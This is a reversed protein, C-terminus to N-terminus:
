GPYDGHVSQKRRLGALGILGTGFLWVTAPVPVANVTVPAAMDYTQTDSGIDHTVAWWTFEGLNLDSVAVKWELTTGGNASQATALPTTLDFNGSVANYTHVDDKFWGGFEPQFHSDVINDIGDLNEPQYTNGPQSGNMGGLGADIYFGYLGAFNGATPTERLDLRFYHYGGEGAYWAALIDQGGDLEYDVGDTIDPTANWDYLYAHAQNGGAFFFTALLLMFMRKM